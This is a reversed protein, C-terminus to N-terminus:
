SLPINNPAHVQTPDNCSLLHNHRERVSFFHLEGYFTMYRYLHQISLKPVCRTRADKSSVQDGSEVITSDSGTPTWAKRCQLHDQSLRRTSVHAGDQNVPFFVYLLTHSVRPLIPSHCCTPTHPEATTTYARKKRMFLSGTDDHSVDSQTYDKGELPFELHDM